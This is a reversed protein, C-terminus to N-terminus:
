NSWRLDSKFQYWQSGANSPTNTSGTIRMRASTPINFYGLSTYGPLQGWDKKLEAGGVVDGNSMVLQFRINMTWFRYGSDFEIDTLRMEVAGKMTRYTGYEATGWNTGGSTQAAGSPHSESWAM